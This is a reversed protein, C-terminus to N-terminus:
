SMSGHACSQFKSREETQKYDRHIFFYQLACYLWPIVIAEYSPDGECMIIYTLSSRQVGTVYARGIKVATWPWWECFVCVHPSGPSLALSDSFVSNYMGEMTFTVTNESTDRRGRVSENKPTVQFYRLIVLVAIPLSACVHVYVHLTIRIYVNVIVM